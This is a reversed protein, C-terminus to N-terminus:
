KKGFASNLSSIKIVPILDIEIDASVIEGNGRPLCCNGLTCRALSLALFMFHRAISDRSWYRSAKSAFKVALPPLTIQASVGSSASLHSGSSRCFGLSALHNDFALAHDGFFNMQVFEKFLVAYFADFGVQTFVNLLEVAFSRIMNNRRRHM